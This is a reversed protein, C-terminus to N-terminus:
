YGTVGSRGRNNRPDRRRFEWEEEDVFDEEEIDPQLDLGLVLTATSDFQDDLTAESMGTFKMNEVEYGPYWGAEKDFKMSKARMRKQYPRGRTAKDKIPLLPVCNLWINTRRMEQFLTPSIAKWIVGDEVFFCEPKHKVQLNFMISMWESADWRGVEQDIIHLFNNTCVGGVTFSTRNAKDKKSVAFDCGIYLKKQAQHDEDTMPLFDDKQLYKVDNDLPDNLYEQSYGASDGDNIFSQRIAMLRAEDYQEPWLIDSFDDFAAHARFFLSSWTNDKLLRTLLADEHLITGHMRVQGGKRLCPILARYFWRRFKERRDRNEVQEDEELDDCVILGPRKGNWKIGRMKQGSGKAIIRFQHGNKKQVIIDTKADVLVRDIEFHEILEKNERLEKAIDGLHNIALDETASVIVVYTQIEFLVTALVFDHTFATSKAHGRPACMCAQQADSCYLEWGKRHFDPTPVPNDYMPSLFVGAFSEVLKATLKIKEM